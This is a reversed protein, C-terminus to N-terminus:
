EKKAGIQALTRAVEPNKGGDLDAALAAEARAEARHGKTQLVQALMWHPKFWNPSSAIAERLCRETSEVDNQRAHLSALSYWANYPDDATGTARVGSELAQQWARLASVPDTAKLAAAAMQRSYWLDAALGWSRAQQYTKAGEIVDGAEVDKRVEALMRDAVLLRVAFGVLALSILTFVIGLAMRFAIGPVQPASGGTRLPGGPGSGQISRTDHSATDLPRGPPRGRVLPDAGSGLAVLMGITLYFYLATAATFVTFQHTVLGAALCAGLVGALVRDTRRGVWAAYFGLGTIGLLALLGVLGQATLADFLINHASENYFGPYARSLEASQVQPFASSFTEPGIGTLWHRSALTASDRWLLLRAGGRPDEVYWRTRSRLMQGAPSFFFTAMAAVAGAAVVAVRRRISRGFWFWFYVAGVFLALIAARTGSLVSAVAALTAAAGGARKWWGREEIGYLAMGLFVAFVLYNAFYSVYGLTSPPRVITWVGEGVHYAQKSIWPDWGFYQAIGYLSIPIAAATVARLYLRIRDRGGALDSAALTTFLLLALQTILGFRRWTSGFVSIGIRSSFITSLILSGAQISLLSYLWRLQWKLSHNAALAAAVGLLLVVMKPTVDFYFLFGPAIILPVLAATLPLVERM